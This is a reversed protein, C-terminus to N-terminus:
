YLIDHILQVYLQDSNIELTSPIGTNAPVRLQTFVKKVQKAHEKYEEETKLLSGLKSLYSRLEVIQSKVQEIDQTSATSESPASTKADTAFDRTRLRILSQSSSLSTTRLLTM